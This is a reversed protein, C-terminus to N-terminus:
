GRGSSFTFWWRRHEVLKFHPITHGRYTEVAHHWNM